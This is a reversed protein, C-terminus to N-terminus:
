NKIWPGFNENYNFDIEFDVKGSDETGYNHFFVPFTHGQSRLHFENGKVHTLRHEWGMSGIKMYLKGNKITIVADGLPAEKHYIGTLKSIDPVESLRKIKCPVSRRAGRKKAELWKELGKASYDEPEYQLPSSQASFTDAIYRLIGMRAYESVESNCLLVVGLDLEPVFGCVGTFGWTTGTHYIIRYSQNQEIYWCYGYDRSFTSDNRVHMAGTHMFKMEEPSIIRCPYDYSIENFVGHLNVVGNNLHFRIWKAMDEANSCIGGAPGITSVWYLAREEGKLPSIVISERASKKGKRYGFYHATARNDSNIYGTADPTSNDMQLPSFIRNRVNEEWSMGTVKEIVKAAIIFTVNNYAFKEGPQYYPEFYRILRYIDDRTYGLNPLYTGVQAVLGTGHTLLEKVKLNQEVSDCYWRFDPLIDKVKDDWSLLGQDVVSAIVAATFAKSMSGIHFITSPEVAESTGTQKVGLAELIITSDGKVVALSLGPIRWERRSKETYDLIKRILISDSAAEANAALSLMFASIAILIIQVSKQM